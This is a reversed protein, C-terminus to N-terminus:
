EVKKENQLETRKGDFFLILPVSVPATAAVFANIFVSYGIHWAFFCGDRTCNVVQELAKHSLSIRKRSTVWDFWELCGHGFGHLSVGAIWVYYLGWLTREINFQM